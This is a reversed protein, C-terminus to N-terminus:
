THQFNQWDPRFLWDQRFLMGGMFALASCLVSILRNQATDMLNRQTELIGKYRVLQLLYDPIDELFVGDVRKMFLCVAGTGEKVAYMDKGLLRLPVNVWGM